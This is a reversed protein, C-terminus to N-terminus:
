CVAKCVGPACAPQARCYGRACGGPGKGSDEYGHHGDPTEFRVGTHRLVTIARRVYADEVLSFPLITTGTDIDLKWMEKAARAIQDRSVTGSM